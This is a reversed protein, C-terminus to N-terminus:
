LAVVRLRGYEDCLLGKVKGDAVATPLSSAAALVKAAIRVPPYGATDGSKEAGIIQEM